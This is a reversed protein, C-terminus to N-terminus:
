YLPLARHSIDLHEVLAPVGDARWLLPESEFPPSAWCLSSWLIQSKPLYLNVLILWTIKASTNWMESTWNIGGKFSIIFIPSFHFYATWQKANNWLNLSMIYTLNRAFLLDETFTTESVGRRNWLRSFLYYFCFSLFSPLSSLSFPLFLFLLLCSSPLLSLFNKVQGQGPFIILFQFFLPVM